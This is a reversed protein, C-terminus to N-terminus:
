KVAYVKFSYEGTALNYSADAWGKTTNLYALKKSATMFTVQMETATPKGILRLM